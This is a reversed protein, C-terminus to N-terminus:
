PRDTEREGLVLTRKQLNKNAWCNARTRLAVLIWLEVDEWGQMGLRKVQFGCVCVPSCVPSGKCPWEAPSGPRWPCLSPHPVRTQYVRLLSAAASATGQARWPGTQTTQSLWGPVSLLLALPLPTSSSTGGSGRGQTDWLEWCPDAMTVFKTFSVCGHQSRGHGM